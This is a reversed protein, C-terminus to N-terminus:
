TRQPVHFLVGCEKAENCELRRGDRDGIFFHFLVESNISLWTSSYWFDTCGIFIHDSDIFSQLLWPEWYKGAKKEYQGGHSKVHVECYVILKEIPNHDNQLSIVICFSLGLLGDNLCGPPLEIFSGKTRFTFWEPISSGPFCIYGDPDHRFSTSGTASQQINQLASKVIDELASQDLKFCNVFNIAKFRGTTSSLISLGCLLELSKCNWAEILQISSPLEPLSKLVDCDWLRLRSLNSLNIISAPISEFKNRGTNLSELSTLQGLSSPLETIGCDFLNLYKLCQLGSLPAVERIGSGSADLEILAELNGIEDPLSNLKWCGSLNVYKLSKLKGISSPLSKLRWCDALNLRELKSLSQISLPLEQIASGDLCLRKINCPFSSVITLSSCGSLYIDEIANLSFINSPLNELRSCDKLILIKLRLLCEISSPLEKIATGELYLKQINCSLKPVLKLNSCWTLHLNELSKLKYISSPLSELRTCNSLNLTVLKSLNEISSPLERIKTGYLHLEEVNCSLSPVADLKSCCTFFVVRLSKSYIESPISCLSICYTLDLTSLKNLYRISSHIEILSTCGRLNLIELNKALSLDPCKLLYKSGSLDIHKLNVINQVGPWLQEINSQPMELAVLNNPHFKLPLSRWAYRPWSLYKLELFEFEVDQFGYLKNFGEGYYSSYVKLYKLNQMKSFVHPTLHMERVRFVDLHINKITETGKNKTLVHYVDEHHFLRSRKGPDEISEQQVIERGMEELLDHIIIKNNYLVIVLSKDILVSLGIETSYGCSDMVDIVLGKDQGRFFCAIDLFIQKEEYDLGDFSIKLVNQIDKHLSTELKKTASEWERKTKGLLSSGLVKLALPVGKAYTVIRESLEMYEKNTCGNHGFAHHSFLQFAEDHLLGQLKYIQDAGCNKLVQKDRSTIIIRSGLGLCKPDRILNEIQNLSTVDDFVILVKKRVLREKTNTLQLNANRDGLIASLLEKRMSTLGRSKDSEERVNEAFFSGEFDSWYKNFIARSISTKGIGGLGWIGMIRVDNFGIELLSEIKKITSYVGILDNHNSPSMKTLRKLIDTVIEGILKFESKKSDTTWGSLNAVETLSTKWRQLIDLREEFRKELAAFAGGFAGTQNRVHSPDVHYFIPIVMKKCDLIKALEELCWSSSAYNESLIIISIKSQEIAKLLSPSIEEGRDLKDDIFTQIKKGCLAANLHCTFNNRTDEGRFSLFVDYKVEPINSSSAM